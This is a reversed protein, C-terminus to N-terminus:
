VFVVVLLGFGTAFSLKQTDSEVVCVAMLTHSLGFAEGYNAARLLRVRSHRFSDDFSEFGEVTLAFAQIGDLAMFEFVDYFLIRGILPM